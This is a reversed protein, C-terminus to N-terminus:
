LLFSAPHSYNTTWAGEEPCVLSGPIRGFTWLGHPVINATSQLLFVCLECMARFHIM